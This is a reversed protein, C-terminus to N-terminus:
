FVQVNIIKKIKIGTKSPVFNPQGLIKENKTKNKLPM